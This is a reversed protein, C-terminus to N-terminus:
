FKLFLLRYYIFLRLILMKYKVRSMAKYDRQYVKDYFNISDNIQEWVRPGDFKYLFLLFDASAKRLLTNTM